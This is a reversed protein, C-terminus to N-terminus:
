RPLFNSSEFLHDSAPCVSTLAVPYDDERGAHAIVTRIMIFAPETAFPGLLIPEFAHRRQLIEDRDHAPEPARNNPFALMRQAGVDDKVPAGELEFRRPEAATNHHSAPASADNGEVPELLPERIEGGLWFSSVSISTSNWSVSHM